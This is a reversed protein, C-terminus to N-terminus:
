PTNSVVSKVDAKNEATTGPTPTPAPKNIDTGLRQLYAILAVVKKNELNAPGGAAEIDQAIQKAQSEALRVSMGDRVEKPYPVGLMAHTLVIREVDDWNTEEELLHAYSPMISQPSSQRPDQFHLVHWLNSRLGGERALDPGIRRSGWQFPHDYV